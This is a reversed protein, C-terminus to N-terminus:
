SARRRQKEQFGDFKDLADIVDLDDNEIRQLLEGIKEWELPSFTDVAHGLQGAFVEQERTRIPVHHDHTKAYYKFLIMQKVKFPLSAKV